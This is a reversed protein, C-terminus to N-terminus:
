IRSPSRGGKEQLNVSGDHQVASGGQGHHLALDADIVSVKAQDSCECSHYTLVARITTDRPQASGGVGEVWVTLPFDEPVDWVKTSVDIITASGDTKNKTWIRIRQGPPNYEVVLRLSGDEPSGELEVRLELLDDEQANPLDPAATEALDTKGSGAPAPDGAANDDDYNKAAYAGPNEEQAENLKGEGARQDLLVNPRVTTVTATATCQGACENTATM